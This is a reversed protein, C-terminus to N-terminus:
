SNRLARKSKRIAYSSVFGTLGWVILNITFTMPNIWGSVEYVVEGDPTLVFPYLKLLLSPWNGGHFAVNAIFADGPSGDFTNFHLLEMVENVINM